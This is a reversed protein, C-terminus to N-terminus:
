LPIVLEVRTGASTGDENKLDFVQISANAGALKNLMALRDSTIKMGYSKRQGATKSKIQQATGRGIGNDEILCILDGNNRRLSLDIKGKGEKKQMLGHWISNEVFPQMLMPPIMVRESDLGKEMKVEYDFKNDFRMSEIEIYLKLAELDDKLPVVTSKSNQLILRILRSFRSLYDVAKEQENTIIYYEISNLSNFIFHPNMQARLASMEVDALKHEYEAKIREEKRVQAISWRYISYGVAGLVVIALSLFWNTKWWVTSIHLYTVSPEGDMNGENNIAKVLFRYDGGPVNTYAAFKRKTGDQWNEDFGELKYQFQIDEPMNFAIASFEFSFFNQQYSLWVTDHQGPSSKLPWSKDFVSFSSIYARPMEVNTELSDPNFLKISRSGGMALTGDSLFTYENAGYGFGLRQDYMVGFQMTKPDFLQLGVDMALLLKDRYPIICFAIGKMGDKKGLFNLVGAEISDAHGYGLNQKNTSLWIRGEEDALMPGMDRLAHVGDHPHYIIRQKARDYILLGNIERMWINGNADEVLHDGGLPKESLQALGEQFSEITQNQVDLRLLNNVASIWYKGEKDKLVKRLERTGNPPQVTYLQLTKFGPKYWYIKEFEPILVTGNEMFAMDVSRFGNMREMNYDPPPPICEWKGKAQDLIFLGRSMSSIVLVKHRVTDELIKRTYSPLNDDITEEYVSSRCQQFLKNFIRFGMGRSASWLRGMGDIFDISYAHDEDNKFSQTICGTRTDYLQLGTTSNIWFEDNSKPYFGIIVDRPFFESGNEYCADLRSFTTTVIDFVYVGGWWTGYYIKGNPHNFICRLNNPTVPPLPDGAGYVFQQHDGTIKNFRVIGQQTGLWFISDNNLDERIDVVSVTITPPNIHISDDKYLYREFDDTEPRYRLIGGDKFGVWVQGKKDKLIHNARNDPISNPNNPDYSYNKFINKQPDFLSLGSLTGVWIKGLTEDPLIHMIFNNSISANDGDIHVYNQILTGDLRVLGNDTGLWAFGEADQAVTMVRDSPLGDLTTFVTPSEFPYQATCFIPLLIILWM